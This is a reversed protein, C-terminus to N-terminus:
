TLLEMSAINLTIACMCKFGRVFKATQNYYAFAFVVLQDRELANEDDYRKWRISIVKCVTDKRLMMYMCRTAFLHMREGSEVTIYLTWLLFLWLLLRRLSLRTAPQCIRGKVHLYAKSCRCITCLKNLTRTFFTFIKSTHLHYFLDSHIIKYTRIIIM